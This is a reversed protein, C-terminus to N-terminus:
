ATGTEGSAQGTQRTQEGNDKREKQPRHPVSYDAIKQICKIPARITVGDKTLLVDGEIFGAVVWKGHPSIAANTPAHLYRVGNVSSLIVIDLQKIM